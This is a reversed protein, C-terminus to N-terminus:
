KQTLAAAALRLQEVFEPIAPNTNTALKVAANTYIITPELSIVAMSGTESRTTNESAHLTDLLVTEAHELHYLDEAENYYRVRCTFEPTLARLKKQISDAYSHDAYHGPAYVQHHQLEQVTVTARDALPSSANVIAVLPDPCIALAEFTPDTIDDSLILCIDAEGDRVESLMDERPMDKIEVTFLPNAQRCAVIATRLISEQFRHGSYRNVTVHRRPFHKLEALKAPLADYSALVANVESLWARGIPTLEVQQTDRDFLKVGLDRELGAIHNSLAPQSLHLERAAKTFSCYHAVTAYERLHEINM